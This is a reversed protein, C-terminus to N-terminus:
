KRRFTINRARGAGANLGTIRGSGDRVPGFHFSGAHFLGDPDCGSVAYTAGETRVMWRGDRVQLRWTSELEDSWYTGALLEMEGPEVPRLKPTTQPAPTKPFRYSTVAEAVQEALRASNANGANCLTIVTTKHSPIRLFYTRYGTAGGSHSLTGDKAIIGLAYGGPTTRGDTLTGPSQL